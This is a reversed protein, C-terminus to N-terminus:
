EGGQPQDRPEAAEVGSMGADLDPEDAATRDGVQVRIRTDVERDTIGNRLRRGEEDM